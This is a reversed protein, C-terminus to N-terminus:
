GLGCGGVARTEWGLFKGEIDAKESMLVKEVYLVTLRWGLAMLEMLLVRDERDRCDGREVMRRASSGSTGTM